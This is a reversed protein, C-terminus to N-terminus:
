SDGALQDITELLADPATHFYDIRIGVDDLSMERVVLEM